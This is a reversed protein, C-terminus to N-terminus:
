WWAYVDMSRDYGCIAQVKDRCFSMIQCPFASGSYSSLISRLEERVHEIKISNLIIRKVEIISSRLPNDDDDSIIWQEVSIGWLRLSNLEKSELPIIPNLVPFHGNESMYSGHKFERHSPMKGLSGCSPSM